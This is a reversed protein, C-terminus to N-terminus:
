ESPPLLLRSFTGLYVVGRGGALGQLSPTPRNYYRFESNYDDEIILIDKEFAEKLLDMRETIHMVEGWVTMQSADPLLHQRFRDEAERASRMGGTRFEFTRLFRVGRDSVLITFIHM